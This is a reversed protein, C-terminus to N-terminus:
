DHIRFIRTVSRGFKEIIEELVCLANNPGGVVAIKIMIPGNMGRAVFPANPHDLSCYVIVFAKKGETPLNRGFINWEVAESLHRVLSPVALKM